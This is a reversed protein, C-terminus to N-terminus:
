INESIDSLRPSIVNLPSLADTLQCYRKWVVFKIHAPVCLFATGARAQTQCCLVLCSFYQKHHVSLSLMFFFVIAASSASKVLADKNPHPSGKASAISLSTGAYSNEDDSASVVLNVSASFEATRFYPVQEGGVARVEDSCMVPGVTFNLM